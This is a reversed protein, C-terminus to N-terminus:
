SDKGLRRRIADSTSFLWGDLLSTVTLVGGVVACLQTVFDALPERKHRFVMRVPSVEYSFLACPVGGRMTERDAVTYEFFHAAASYGADADPTAYLMPIVKLHHELTSRRYQTVHTSRALHDYHDELDDRREFLPLLAGNRREVAARDSALLQAPDKARLQARRQKLAEWYARSSGLLGAEWASHRAEQAAHARRAEQAAKASAAAAERDIARPEPATDFLLQRAGPAAAAAAADAAPPADLAVLPDSAITVAPTAEVAASAAAAATASSLRPAGRAVKKQMVSRMFRERLQGVSAADTLNHAGMGKADKPLSAVMADYAKRREAMKVAKLRDLNVKSGAEAAAGGGDGGSDGGGGGGGGRGDGGGGHHM